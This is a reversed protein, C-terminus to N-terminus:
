HDTPMHPLLDYDPPNYHTTLWEQAPTRCQDPPVLETHFATITDWGADHYGLLLSLPFPTPTPLPTLICIRAGTEPQTAVPYVTKRLKQQLTRHDAPSLPHDPLLAPIHRAQQPIDTTALDDLTYHNWLWTAVPEAANRAPTDGRTLPISTIHEWGTDPHCGLWHVRDGLGIMLQIITEPAATTLRATVRVHLVDDVRTLRNYENLTLPRAPFSPSDFVPEAPFEGYGPLTLAM